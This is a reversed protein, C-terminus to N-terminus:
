NGEAAGTMTYGRRMQPPPTWNGPSLPMQPGGAAIPGQPAVMTPVTSGAAPQVPVPGAAPPQAPYQYMMVPTTPTVGPQAAPPAVVPLTHPVNVGNPIAGNPQMQMPVNLQGAPGPQAVVGAQGMVGQPPPVNPQMVMSPQPMITGQPMMTGQPAMTAQPWVVNPQPDGGIPGFYAPGTQPYTMTPMPAPNAGKMAPGIVEMGHGHIKAIDPVCWNMRRSEEALIRANDMEGRVIHPTMIILLERKAVSHTRYRFLAGVYPINKFFPIGNEQRTDQKSILGGLVITEGDSALVTTQVTQVNFAPSQIGNGLSVPAPTVSSVQPEVRMLIKGEPSVRPTVRMTVGISRYEVSQQALGGQAVTSTSLYPFDQGVQVYGTQNDAVQVQPRSLVEIRGQAQLARVLLSFSDNAASFVFGGVGQTSSTRGVGLNGLGQFGVLGPDVVQNPLATTTNFNFGPTAVGGVGASGISTIGRNFLVRSQLGTEVGMEQTNTLQVEAITVQIVVQTPMADLREIIRKFEAIQLPTANIILTNTIPEATIVVQKQLTQYATLFQAGTLVNLSNTIFTQLSAQIDAASGHRLKISETVRAPTDVAELKGILARITDLDNQAGAVILSNTRDDVSIRLDILSAGDSPNGRFTLLPRAQQNQLNQQGINQNQTRGQGTFM